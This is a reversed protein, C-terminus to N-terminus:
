TTTYSRSSWSQGFRSGNALQAGHELSQIRWTGRFGPPVPLASLKQPLAPREEDVNTPSAWM